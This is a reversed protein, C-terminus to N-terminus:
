AGLQGHDEDHQWGYQSQQTGMLLPSRIRMIPHSPIVMVMQDPAAPLFTNPKRRCNGSWPESRRIIARWM